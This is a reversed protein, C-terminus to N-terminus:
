MGPLRGIEEAVNHGLTTIGVGPKWLGMRILWMWEGILMYRSGGGTLLARQAPRLQRALKRTLPVCRDNTPQM